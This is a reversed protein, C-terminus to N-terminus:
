IIPQRLKWEELRAEYEKSSEHPGKVPREENREPDPRPPVPMPDKFVLEMDYPM